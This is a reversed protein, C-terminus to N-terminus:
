LWWGREGLERAQAQTPYNVHVYREGEVVGLNGNLKEVVKNISAVTMNNDRWADRLRDRRCVVSRVRQLIDLGCGSPTVHPLGFPSAAFGSEKPPKRYPTHGYYTLCMGM